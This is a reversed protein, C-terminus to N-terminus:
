MKVETLNQGIRKMKEISPLPSTVFDSSKGINVYSEWHPSGAKWNLCNQGMNDVSYGICDPDGDCTSQCLAPPLQFKTKLGLANDYPCYKYINGDLSTKLSANYGASCRTTSLYSDWNSDVNFMKFNVLGTNVNPDTINHNFTKCIDSNHDCLSMFDSSYFNLMSTGFKQNPDQDLKCNPLYSYTNEEGKVSLVCTAVIALFFSLTDM